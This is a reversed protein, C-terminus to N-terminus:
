NLVEMKGTGNVANVSAGQNLLLAVIDKKGASSAIILPTWEADDM